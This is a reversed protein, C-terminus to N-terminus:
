AQVKETLLKAQYRQAESIREVEVSMSDVAQEIRNIQSALEANVPSPLGRRDIWRGFARALPVGVICIVTAVIVMTILDFIQPPIPNREWPPAPPPVMITGPEPHQMEARIQERVEERVREMERRVDERIRQVDRQTQARAEARAQARAQSSSQNQEVTIVYEFGVDDEL